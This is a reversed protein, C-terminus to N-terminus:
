FEYSLRIGAQRRPVPTVLVGQRATAAPFVTPNEFDTWRACTSWAKSDFLNRVFLEVRVADTRVGMRANATMFGKCFALNAEDAYTRGTYFLDVRGFGDLRDNIPTDVSSNASWSWAPFRPLTNGSVDNFGAIGLVQQFQFDKYKSGAYNGAFGLSWADNVQFQSELEVGYIKASGATILGRASLFPAGGAFRAPEGINAEGLNPRCGVGGIARCTENIIASVSSKMNDWDAYYAALAFRGRGGFLKQKWGVEYNLLKEQRTAAAADSFLEQYQRTENADADVLRQNIAGPLVGVSYSAYLNTSDSPTVQVIVRPLFSKYTQSIQRTVGQTNKDIQYRAELSLSIFRNFEYSTAGFLGLTKISDNNADHNATFATGTCVFDAPNVASNFTDVCLAVVDGSNAPAVYRQKYANVGVLWTFADSGTSALRVEGSMDRQSRAERVYWNEFASPGYDRVSQQAVDALAAQVTLAISDSVDYEIAASARFLDRRLGIHDIDPVVGYRDPLPRDILNTFLINPTGNLAARQPLLSTNGDILKGEGMIPVGSKQGPVAGCIYGRPTATGGTPKEITKGTCTDNQVGSMFAGAPAGDDDQAYYGRLKISLGDAPEAYLTGFLLYSSEAGLRGGDSARYMGGKSSYTGGIRAALVDEVLASEVAGSFSVDDYTAVSATAKGSTGSLRPTRTIYNVAGGFTNRGFYASQPGKIVEVREVDDLPISNTTGLIYIGDIFLSGVQRSPAVSNVHMGRFRIVADVRGAAQGGMDNYQLGPSLRAIDELSRLDANELGESTFATIAIPVEQLTEDRRRATVVIEGSQGEQNDAAQDVEAPNNEAPVPASVSPDQSDQVAAATPFSVIVAITSVGALMFRKM